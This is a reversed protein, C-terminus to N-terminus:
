AIRGDGVGLKSVTSTRSAALHETSALPIPCWGTEDTQQAERRRVPSARPIPCWLDQLASTQYVVRRGARGPSGASAAVPRRRIPLTPGTTQHTRPRPSRQDRRRPPREGSQGDRARRIDRRARVYMASLIALYILLPAALGMLLQPAGLANIVKHLGRPISLMGDAVFVELFGDALPQIIPFWILLFWLLSRRWWAPRRDKEQIASLLHEELSDGLDVLSQAAQDVLNDAEPFQNELALREILAGQEARIRIHLDKARQRLHRGTVEAWRPQRAAGGDPRTTSFHRGLLRSFWGFPWHVLRLLPWREVRRELLEDALTAESRMQRRLGDALLVAYEDDMVEELLQAHYEEDTAFHLQDRLTPLDYETQLRQVAAARERRQNAQKIRKADEPSIAALVERRLRELESAAQEAIAEVIARDKAYRTWNSDDWLNGVREVFAQASPFAAALVFHHDAATSCGVSASGQTVWELQLQWFREAAAKPNAAAPFTEVDSLLEDLKNLVVRVNGPDKIVRPFMEVWARDGLKRPTLIWLVRDLLPAIGEVLHLHDHFESDFDPLDLLVVNRIASAEHTVIRLPSRRDFEVLRRHVVSEQAAHVYAIAHDTGRGVERTDSSVEAGALANILTTKGVDKGGLVGCFILEDTLGRDAGLVLQLPPRHLLSAIQLNLAELAERDSFRTGVAAANRQGIAETSAARADPTAAPEATQAARWAASPKTSARRESM